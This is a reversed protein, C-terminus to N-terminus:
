ADQLLARTLNAGTFDCGGGVAQRFKAGYLCARTFRAHALACKSFEVGFLQGETFDAQEFSSRYCRSDRLIARRFRAHVASTGM